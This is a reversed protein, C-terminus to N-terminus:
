MCMTGADDFHALSLFRVESDSDKSKKKRKKSEEEPASEEEKKAKKSPTEITKYSSKWDTPTKDNPRGYKDLKGDVILQLLSCPELNLM